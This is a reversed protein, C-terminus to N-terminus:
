SKEQSCLKAQASLVQGDQGHDIQTSCSRYLLIGCCTFTAQGLTVALGSPVPDPINPMTKMQDRVWWICDDLFSLCPRLFLKLVIEPGTNHFRAKPPFM